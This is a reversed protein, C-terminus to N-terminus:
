EGALGRLCQWLRAEVEQPLRPPRQGSYLRLTQRTTEVVVRCAPCNGLHLELQSCRAGELEGDLYDCLIEKLRECDDM